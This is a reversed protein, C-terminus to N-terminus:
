RRRGMALAEIKDAIDYFVDSPYTLDADYGDDQPYYNKWFAEWDVDELMEMMERRGSPTADLFTQELSWDLDEAYITHDLSRLTMQVTHESRFRGGIVWGKDGSELKVASARASSSMVKSGSAYWHAINVGLRRNAIAGLPDAAKHKKYVSKGVKQMETGGYYAIVKAEYWPNGRTFESFLQQRELMTLNKGAWVGSMVGKGIQTWFERHVEDANSWMRQSETYPTMKLKRAEEWWLKANARFAAM